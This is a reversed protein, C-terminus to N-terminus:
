FCGLQRIEAFDISLSFYNPSFWFPVAPLPCCFFVDRCNAVFTWARSFPIVGTTNSCYPLVAGPACAMEVADDVM